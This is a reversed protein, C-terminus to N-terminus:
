VEDSWGWRMGETSEPNTIPGDYAAAAQEFTTKWSGTLLTTGEPTPTM